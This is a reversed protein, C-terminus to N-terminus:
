IFFNFFSFLILFGLNVFFCFKLLFVIFTVKLIKPKLKFKFIFFHPYLITRFLLSLNLKLFFINFYFKHSPRYLVNKFIEIFFKM